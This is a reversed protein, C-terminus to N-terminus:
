GDGALRRRWSVLAAALGSLIIPLAVAGEAVQGGTRASPPPVSTDVPPDVPPLSEEPVDPVDPLDSQIPRYEIACIVHTGPPVGVIDDVNTVVITVGGSDEGMCSYSGVDYGDLESASLAYDSAPVTAREVGGNVYSGTGNGVLTTHWADATLTTHTSDILNDTTIPMYTADNYQLGSKFLMPDFKADAGTPHTVTYSTGVAVPVDVTATPSAYYADWASTFGKNMANTNLGLQSSPDLTALALDRGDTTLGPIGLGVTYVHTPVPSMTMENNYKADNYTDTIKGKLFSATLAAKFGNGFYQTGGPTSPGHTGSSTTVNWWASATSSLTPEGDTFILVNPIRQNFGSVDATKQTALVGMGVAIGLQINTSQVTTGVQGITMSNTATRFTMTGGNTAPASLTVYRATGPVVRPTSLTCLTGAGTGFQVIGVRNAANNDMIIEIADNVAETMAYARSNKYTTPGDCYADSTVCQAMSRSNDLVLVLDIPVQVQGSVHRTSGRASLVVALEDEDLMIPKPKIPLLSTAEDLGEQDLITKDVWIRGPFRSSMYHDVTKGPFEHMTPPDIVKDIPPTPAAVAPQNPALAAFGVLGVLASLIASVPRKLFSM